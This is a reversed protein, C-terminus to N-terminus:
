VFWGYSIKVLKSRDIMECAEVETVPEPYVSPWFADSSKANDLSHSALQVGFYNVSFRMDTAPM